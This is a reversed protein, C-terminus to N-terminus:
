RDTKLLVWEDWFATPGWEKETYSIENDWDECGDIHQDVKVVFANSEDQHMVTGLLDAPATFWPFREIRHNKSRTTVRSGHPPIRTALRRSLTQKRRALIMDALDLSLKLVHDFHCGSCDLLFEFDQHEGYEADITRWVMMVSDFCIPDRIKELREAGQSRSGELFCFDRASGILLSTEGLRQSARIVRIAHAAGYRVCPETMGTMSAWREGVSEVLSHYCASKVGANFIEQTNARMAIAMEIM